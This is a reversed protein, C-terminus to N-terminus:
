GCYRAQVDSCLCSEPGACTMLQSLFYMINALCLKLIEANAFGWAICQFPALGNPMVTIIQKPSMAKHDRKALWFLHSVSCNNPSVIMMRRWRTSLIVGCFALATCSVALVLWAVFFICSFHGTHRCTTKFCAQCYRHEEWSNPLVSRLWLKQLVKGCLLLLTSLEIKMGWTLGNPSCGTGM